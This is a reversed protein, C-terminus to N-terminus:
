NEESPKGEGNRREDNERETYLIGAGSIFADLIVEGKQRNRTRDVIKTTTFGMM